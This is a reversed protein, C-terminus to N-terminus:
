RRPSPVPATPFWGAHGTSCPGRGIRTAHCATVAPCCRGSACAHRPTASRARRTTSSWRMRCRALGASASATSRPWTAAVPPRSRIAPANSSPPRKSRAPTSAWASCAPPASCTAARRRAHKAVPACAPAPTARSKSRQLAPLRRSRGPRVRARVGAGQASPRRRSDRPASRPRWTSAHPRMAPPAISSTSRVCTSAATAFVPRARPVGSTPRSAPITPASSMPRMCRPSPPSGCVWSSCTRADDDSRASGPSRSRRTALRSTRAYRDILPVLLNLLPIFLLKDYFRPVGARELLLYLLFVGAGYLAGFIARGYNDRPSTAPDTVLLHLGLFVAIPIGSDLFWYVGTVQTYVVNLLWLTAAAAFTVLTVEFFYQVILGM